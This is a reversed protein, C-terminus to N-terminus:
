IREVMPPLENELVRSAEEADPGLSIVDFKGYENLCGVNYLIYHGRGTRVDYLTDGLSDALAQFSKGVLNESVYDRARYAPRGQPFLRDLLHMPTSTGGWRGNCETFRLGSATLIFDFSCRGAYGLSQYVAAVMLSAHGMAQDLEHGLSSPVSGLFVQEDGELLQEYVGDLQPTGQGKPPIWLQTSPSATSPEWAVAQVEDGQVWEKDVLFQEVLSSLDQGNQAIETSEFVRNGMASACRAMKLAVKAHKAALTRLGKGLGSVTSAISGDVVWHSGLLDNVLRTLHCKDNAFWTIPPPPALVATDVSAQEAVQAALNWVAEIGMYPHFVLGGGQRAVEVLTSLAEGQCCAKSVEV